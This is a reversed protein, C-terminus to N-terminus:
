QVQMVSVVASGDKILLDQSMFRGGGVIERSVRLHGRVHSFTRSVRTERTKCSRRERARASSDSFSFFFLSQECDVCPLFKNTVSFCALHAKILNRLSGVLRRLRGSQSLRIIDEYVQWLLSLREKIIVPKNHLM